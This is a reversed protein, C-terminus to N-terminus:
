GKIFFRYSFLEWNNNEDKKFIFFLNCLTNNYTTYTAYLLAYDQENYLVNTFHLRHVNNRINERWWLEFNDIVNFNSCNFESINYRSKFNLFCINQKELEKQWLKEHEYYFFSELNVEKFNEQHWVSKEIYVDEKIIKKYFKTNVGGTSVFFSNTDTFIEIAKTIFLCYEKEENQGYSHTSSFMLLVSIFYFCVSQRNRM